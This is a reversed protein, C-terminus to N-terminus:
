RLIRNAAAAPRQKPAARNTVRVGAANRGDKLGKSSIRHNFQDQELTNFLQALHALEDLYPGAKGAIIQQWLLFRQACCLFVQRIELTLAGLEFRIVQLALAFRRLDAALELPQSDHDDPLGAFAPLEVTGNRRAVDGVGDSLCAERDLFALHNELPRDLGQAQMRQTDYKM